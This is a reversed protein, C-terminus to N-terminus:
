HTSEFCRLHLSDEILTHAQDLTANEPPIWTEAFRVNGNNDAGSQGWIHNSSYYLILRGRNWDWTDNVSSLRTDFLQGRKNYFAKQYLPTNTGFQERGISGWSSYTIGTAYTRPDGGLNGSFSTTRGASDYSYSVSRNSPYSQTVVGGARNYTRSVPFSKWVNNLKFSQQQALPRGLADYSDVSMKEVNNAAAEDGKYAYWFRGLGNHRAM